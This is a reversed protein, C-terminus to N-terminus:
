VVQGHLDEMVIDVEHREKDRFHSFLYWDDSRSALKLIESFVFSELLPEFLIRERNLREPTIGKLAALLGSDLFHFKPTKRLSKLTNTYWSQLTHIIFLKEFVGAYRRTTVHNMGLTAGFSSYNVLWGSHEALVRLLKPMTNLQEVRAVYSIDREIIANVYNMHWNRRRRWSSRTLAKPCGGALVVEILDDGVISTATQPAASAFIQELFTSGTERLEAQALPLLRITEMRGALSDALQPLKILNASGTLLFRGPRPDTDVAMKIALILDPARHVEDIVARDLGRVFGVPDTSASELITPDDLTFFPINDGAINQALTTKGSQRPDFIFVIRTDTLAERVRREVFRPYM